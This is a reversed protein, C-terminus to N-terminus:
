RQGRHPPNTTYPDDFGLQRLVDREIREMCEAEDDSQHDYGMLHLTGHVVMHAWHARPPKHQEAAERAVVPACIAIDGLLGDEDYPFSLVNTPRRKGRFRANLDTMEAEGVIRLTLEGAPVEPVAAVWARLSRASPVGAPPVRRQVTIKLGRSM